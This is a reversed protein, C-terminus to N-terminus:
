RARILIPPTVYPYSRQVEHYSTIVVGEISLAAEMDNAILRSGSRYLLARGLKGPEAHKDIEAMWQTLLSSPAVVLTAKSKSKANPRGDLINCIAMVTKGLGMDDSM